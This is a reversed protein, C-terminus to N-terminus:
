NELRSVESLARSRSLSQKHPFPFTFALISGPGDLERPRQGYKLLWVRGARSGRNQIM